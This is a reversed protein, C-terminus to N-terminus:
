INKVFNVKEIGYYCWENLMLVLVVVKYLVLIWFLKRKLIIYLDFRRYLILVNLVLVFLNGFIIM